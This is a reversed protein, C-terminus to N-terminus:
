KLYAFKNQFKEWVGLNIQDIEMDSLNDENLAPYKEKLKAFAEKDSQEKGDGQNMFNVMHDSQKLVFLLEPDEPVNYLSTKKEVWSTFGSWDALAYRLAEKLLKKDPIKDLLETAFQRQGPGWASFYKDAKKMSEAWVVQLEDIAIDSEDAKPKPATKTPQKKPKTDQSEGWLLKQGEDTLRYFTANKMGDYPNKGTLTEVLDAQKLRDISSQIKKVTLSLEQAMAKQTEVFWKKGHRQIEAKLYNFQIRWLVFADNGNETIKQCDLPSPGRRKTAPKEKGSNDVVLKPKTDFKVAM